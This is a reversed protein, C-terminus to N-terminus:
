AITSLTMITGVSECAKATALEGMPHAMRQMASPSACIPLSLHHGLVTTTLDRESVDCLFRPRIRLRQFARRNERLTNEDNAGSKYYDATAKSLHQLAYSEIDDICLMKTM